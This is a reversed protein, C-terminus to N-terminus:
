ATMARTRVFTEQIIFADISARHRELNFKKIIKTKKDHWIEMQSETLILELPSISFDQRVGAETFM